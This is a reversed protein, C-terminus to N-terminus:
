LETHETRCGRQLDRTAQFSNQELPAFHTHLETDSQFSIGFGIVSYDILKATAKFHWMAPLAILGM